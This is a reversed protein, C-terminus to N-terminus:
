PEKDFLQQNSPMAMITKCKKATHQPTELIRGLPGLLDVTVGGCLTVTAVAISAAIVHSFCVTFSDVDPSVEVMEEKITNIQSVTGRIRQLTHSGCTYLSVFQGSKSVLAVCDNDFTHVKGTDLETVRFARLTGSLRSQDRDTADPLRAM